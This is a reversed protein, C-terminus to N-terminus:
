IEIAFSSFTFLEFKFLGGLFVLFDILFGLFGILGDFIEFKM